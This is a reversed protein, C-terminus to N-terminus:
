PPPIGKKSTHITPERFTEPEADTAVLDIVPGHLALRKLEKARDEIVARAEAIPLVYPSAELILDKLAEFKAADYTIRHAKPVTVIETTNGARLVFQGINLRMLTEAAKRAVNALSHFSTPRDEYINEFTESVGDTQSTSRQTSHGVADATGHARGRMHAQGDTESNSRGKTNTTGNTEGLSTSENVTNSDAHSQSESRM